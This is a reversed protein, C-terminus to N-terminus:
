LICLVVHALLLHGLLRNLTSRLCLGHSPTLRAGASSRSEERPACVCCLTCPPLESGARFVCLLSFLSSQGPFAIFSTYPWPRSRRGKGAAGPSRSTSIPYICGPLAVRKPVWIPPLSISEVLLCSVAKPGWLVRGKEAQKGTDM